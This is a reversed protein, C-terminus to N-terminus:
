ALRASSPLEQGNSFTVALKMANAFWAQYTEHTVYGVHPTALVNQMQRFAHNDPLPECDFVDLGAAAIAQSRLADILDSESVIPGRSTNVLVATPKMQSLENVGILGRTTESLVLHISVVDSSRLLTSLGVSKAGFKMARLTTLNPSWAVIRMGFAKGLRAVRSGVNGLGVLGLTKGRALNGVGQQWAGAKVSAAEHYLNKLLSLMITITLEATDTHASRGTGFVLIGRSKAANLDIARNITGATILLKLDFLQNLTSASFSTRERMAFVIEYGKLASILQQQDEIHHRISTVAINPCKSQEIYTHAVEQYDNLILMKLQRGM